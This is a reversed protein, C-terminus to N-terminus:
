SRSRPDRARVIDIAKQPFAREITNRTFDFFPGMIMGVVSSLRPFALILGGIIYFITFVEFGTKGLTPSLDGYGVTSVPSRRHCLTLAHAGTAILPLSYHPPM